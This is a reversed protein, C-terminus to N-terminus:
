RITLFDNHNFLARTLGERARAEAEAAGQERLRRGQAELFALCVERESASPARSLIREYLAIVFEEPKRTSPLPGEGRTL